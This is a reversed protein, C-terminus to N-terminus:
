RGSGPRTLFIRGEEERLSLPIPHTYPGFYERVSTNKLHLKGSWNLPIIMEEVEVNELYVHYRGALVLRPVLTRAGPRGVIALVSGNEVLNNLHAEAFGELLVDGAMLIQGSGVYAKDGKGTLRLGSQRIGQPDKKWDHFIENDFNGVHRAAVCVARNGTGVRLLAVHGLEARQDRLRIELSKWLHDDPRKKLNETSMHQRFSYELDLEETIDAEFTGRGDVVTVWRPVNLDLIAPIVRDSSPGAEKVEGRVEQGGPGSIVSHRGRDWSRKVTRTSPSLDMCKPNFSTALNPVLFNEQTFALEKDFTEARMKDGLSLPAVVVSAEKAAAEPQPKEPEEKAEKLGNAAKFRAVDEDSHARASEEPLHECHHVKHGNADQLHRCKVGAHAIPAISWAIAGLTAFFTRLHVLNGGVRIKGFGFAAIAQRRWSVGGCAERGGSLEVVEGRWRARFPGQRPM